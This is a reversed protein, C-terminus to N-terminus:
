FGHPKVKLNRLRELLDELQEARLTGGKRENELSNEISDLVDMILERYDVGFFQTLKAARRRRLEFDTVEPKPSTISYESALSIMSTRAPLSRRRESKISANSIRRETPKSLDQLTIEVSEGGNLYQHLEVLSARDDHDLIDNLSQLSHQYHQYLLSNSGPYNDSQRTVDDYESSGPGKPLLRKSSESTGPRSSKRATKTYSSRNINRQSTTAEPISHGFFAENHIIPTTPVSPSPSHRTHYLTQPPAIGFVKEMKQARRVNIAKERNNLEEKVRDLDDSWTSPLAVVSSSRRRRLWAKRTVEEVKASETAAQTPPLSADLDSFGLVLDTPVRSGLFRHLKALRERKRRREDEAQEEPTMNEFLSQNSPSAPRCLNRNKKATISLFSVDDPTLPASHRRGSSTLFQPDIPSRESMRRQRLSPTDLDDFRRRAQPMRTSSATRGAEQHAMAEAGPTEGFVRALKRSKKILDTREALDLFNTTPPLIPDGHLSHEPPSGKPSSQRSKGPRSSRFLARPLIPIPSHTQDLHPKSSISFQYNSDFLREPASLMNHDPITFEAKSPTFIEIFSEPNALPPIDALQEHTGHFNYLSHSHSNYSSSPYITSSISIRPDEERSISTGPEHTNESAVSGHSLLPGDHWANKVSRTKQSNGIAGETDMEEGESEVPDRLNPTLPADSLPLHQSNSPQGNKNSFFNTTSKGITLFKDARSSPLTRSQSQPLALPRQPIALRESPSTLTASLTEDRPLIQFGLNMPLSVTDTRDGEHTEPLANVTSLPPQSSATSSQDGDVQLVDEMSPAPNIYPNSTSSSPSGVATISSTLLDSRTTQAIDDVARAPLSHSPTQISASGPNAVGLTLPRTKRPGRPPPPLGPSTHPPLSAITPSSVDSSYPPPPTSLAINGRLREEHELLAELNSSIVLSRPNNIKKGDKKDQLGLESRRTSTIPQHFESSATGSTYQCKRLESPTKLESLPRWWELALLNRLDDAYYSSWDQDDIEAVTLVSM